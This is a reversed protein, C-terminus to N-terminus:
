YKKPIGLSVSAEIIEVMVATNYVDFDVKVTNRYNKQEVPSNGTPNLLLLIDERENYILKTM